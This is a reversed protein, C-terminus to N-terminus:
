GFEWMKCVHGVSPERYLHMAHLWNHDYTCSGDLRRDLNKILVCKCLEIVFSWAIRRKPTEKMEIFVMRFSSIQVNTYLYKKYAQSLFQSDTITKLFNTFTCYMPKLM